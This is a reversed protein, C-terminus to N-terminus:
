RLHSDYVDLVANPVVIPLKKIYMILRKINERTVLVMDVADRNDILM